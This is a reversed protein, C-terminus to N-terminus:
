YGGLFAIQNEVNNVDAIGASRMDDQITRFYPKFTSPHYEVGDESTGKVIGCVSCKSYCVGGEYPNGSTGIHEFKHQGKNTMCTTKM